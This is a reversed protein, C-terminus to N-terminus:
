VNCGLFSGIDLLQISGLGFFGYYLDLLGQLLSFLLSFVDCFVGGLM